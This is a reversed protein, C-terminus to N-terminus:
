EPKLHYCEFSVSGDHFEFGARLVGVGHAGEVSPDEAVYRVGGHAHCPHASKQFAFGAGGDFQLDVEEARDDAALEYGVAFHEAAAFVDAVYFAFDEVIGASHHGLRGAGAHRQSALLGRPASRAQALFQHVSQIRSLATLSHPKNASFIGLGLHKDPTHHMCHSKPIAEVHLSQRSARVHNERAPTFDNKDM